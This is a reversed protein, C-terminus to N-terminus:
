TWEGAAVGFGVGGSAFELGVGGTAVGFGVGGSAFELDAGGPAVGELGTGEAAVKLGEVDSASRLAMM